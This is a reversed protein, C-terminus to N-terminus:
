RQFAPLLRPRAPIRAPTEIMAAAPQRNPRCIGGNLCISLGLYGVFGQIDGSLGGFIIMFSFTKTLFVAYLFTNVTHLAPDGYLHNRRLAWVGAALFWLVAIAGWIGFPLIVSLPGSHYDGSIALGQQSPDNNSQFPSDRGMLEADEPTIAYGKGL